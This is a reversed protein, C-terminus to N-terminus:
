EDDNSRKSSRTSAAAAAKKAKRQDERAKEEAAEDDEDSASAKPRSKGLYERLPDRKPKEGESKEEEDKDKGKKGKPEDEDEDEDEEDGKKGKPKEDEEEDEDDLKRKKGKPKEDEDADEDEDEEDEEDSKGKKGKPKEDEEFENDDEDEDEDDPKGKKSKPKEDEDEDEDSKGKKSKPKEGEDEEDGKTKGKPKEDEDDDMTVDTKSRPEADDPPEAEDEGPVSASVRAKFVDRVDSTLLEENECFAYMVLKPCSRFAMAVWLAQEEASAVRLLGSSKGADDEGMWFQAKKFVEAVDEPTMDALLKDGGEATFSKRLSVEYGSKKPDIKGDWSTNKVIDKTVKPNFVVIIRGGTITKEKRSFKGVPDGYIFPLSPDKEADGDYSDAETDFLRQLNIGAARSLQIVCLDDKAGLGFPKIRDGTIHQKEGNAYVHGQMFWRNTPQAVSAGSGKKGDMFKNWDSDWKSGDGFRASKFAQSCARYFIRYPNNAKAEEDGPNHLNFTYKPCDPLGIYPAVPMSVMWHGYAGPERSVRGPQLKEEPAEYDLAPWARFYLPGKEWQPRVLNVPCLDLNLTRDDPPVHSDSKGHVRNDYNWPTRPKLGRKAM